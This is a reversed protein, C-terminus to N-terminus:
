FLPPAGASLHRTLYARRPDRSASDGDTARRLAPWLQCPAAPLPPPRRAAPVLSADFRESSPFLDVEIRPQHRYHILKSKHPHPAITRRETPVPSLHPCIHTLPQFPQLQTIDPTTLLSHLHRFYRPNRTRHFVTHCRVIDNVSRRDAVMCVVPSATSTGM